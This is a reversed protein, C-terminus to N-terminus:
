RATGWISWALSAFQGRACHSRRRGLITPLGARSDVHRARKEAEVGSLRKGTQAAPKVDQLGDTESGTRDAARRMPTPEAIAAPSTARSPPLSRDGHNRPDDVDGSHSPHRSARPVVHARPVVAGSPESRRCVLTRRTSVRVNRLVFSRCEPEMHIHSHAVIIRHEYYPGVVVASLHIEGWSDRIVRPVQSAVEVQFLGNVRAAGTGISPQKRNRRHEGHHQRGRDTPASLTLRPPRQDQRPQARVRRSRV